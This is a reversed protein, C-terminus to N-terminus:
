YGEGALGPMDAFHRRNRTILTQSRVYAIAGILIDMDGVPRGIDLLHAKYRAFQRASDEDLDLVGFGNLVHEIKDREAIGGLM